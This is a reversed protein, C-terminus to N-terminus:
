LIDAINLPIKTWKVTYHSLKYAKQETPIVTNPIIQVFMFTISTKCFNQSWTLRMQPEMM